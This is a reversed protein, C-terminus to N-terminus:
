RVQAVAERHDLAPFLQANLEPLFQGLFESCTQEANQDGPVMEQIVYLKYLAQSGAFALRPNEPAQWTGNANWTWLVRLERTSVVDQKAFQAQWLSAEARNASEEQRHTIGKSAEYGAGRYCVDPTHVSLPGARGCALLINITSGTQRNKFTRVLHGSFGAQEVERESLPTGPEGTWNGFANPVHELRAIATALRESSGWRNTWLGYVLGDAVLLAMAILLPALTRASSPLM